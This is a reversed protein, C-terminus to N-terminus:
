GRILYPRPESDPGGLVARVQEEARAPDVQALARHVEPVTIPPVSLERLGLGVLLEVSRPEAALEGCISLPISAARAADVTMKLMRLLGVHRPQYLYAVADHDRDVALGFRFLDNTGLALFDASAAIWDAAVAAAPVEIMAGLPIDRRVPLGADILAEAEVALQRRVEQLEDATTVM